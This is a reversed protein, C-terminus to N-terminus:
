LECNANLNQDFATSADICRSKILLNKAYDKSELGKPNPWVGVCVQERISYCMRPDDARIPRTIRNTSKTLAFFLTPLRCHMGPSFLLAANYKDAIEAVSQKIQKRENHDLLALLDRVNQKSLRNISYIDISDAM